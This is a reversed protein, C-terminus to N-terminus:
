FASKFQLGLGLANGEYRSVNSTTRRGQISVVPEFGWTEFRSLSLNVAGFVTTDERGSRSFAGGFFVPFDRRAVGLSGSLKVGAIEKGLVYQAEASLNLNEQNADESTTNGATLRLGLTDGSPLIRQTASELIVATAAAGPGRRWQREAAVTLSTQLLPSLIRTVTADMRARRGYAQGALWNQGLTLGGRLHTDPNLTAFRSLSVDIASTAYDSAQANPAIQHARDSLYVATQSLRLTLDTGKRDTGALRYRLALGLRAEAGPLAMSARDFVFYTPVGDVSLIATDTGQNVNNSPLLSADFMLQVRSIRRLAQFDTITAQRAAPTPAANVARRLWYQAVLSRDQGHAAQAAIRAAVFREHATDGARFAQAATRRAVDPSRNVMAVTALVALAAADQPDAQLQQLALSRASVGDGAAMAIEAPSPTQAAAAGALLCLGLLLAARRAPGKAGALM